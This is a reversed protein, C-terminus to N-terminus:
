CPRPTPTPLGPTPTPCVYVTITSTFTVPNPVPLFRLVLPLKCTVSITQEYTNSVPGPAPTTLPAVVTPSQCTFSNAGMAGNVVAQLKAADYDPHNSAYLGAERTADSVETGAFFVRALDIGGAVLVLFFPLILSFEVLSQALSRHRRRRRSISLASRLPTM